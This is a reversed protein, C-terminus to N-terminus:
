LSIEGGTRSDMDAQVPISIRTIYESTERETLEDWVAEKYCFEGTKLQYKNIYALLEEYAKDASYYDGRLYIVAYQGAPKTLYEMNDPKWATKTIFYAYTDGCGKQIDNVAIMAGYPHGTNTHTHNVQSIHGCIASFLAEHDNTDLRPTAILYEEEFHKRFVETCNGTFHLNEGETVLELKTRIVQRIRKLHLLEEEVRKQQRFLLKKLEAASRNEVFERIEKLPMGMDKLWTITFFIDCQTESYYRYGKEDTFAPQFLGIEDYHILTRKNTNCLKAFSGTNICPVSYKQM